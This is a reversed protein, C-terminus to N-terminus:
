QDFIHLKEIWSFCLYYIVKNFIKNGFVVLILFAFLIVWLPTSLLHSLYFPAAKVLFGHLLFVPWTNQGIRTILLIKRDLYPKVGVFLFVNWSLSIMFIAARMWLTSSCNSYSYSGYLLEKPLDTCLFFPISILIVVASVLFIPLRIKSHISMAELIGNKKCYYGLLFWPQFVFFRSLSMYYGVSDDYGIVLAIIFVVLVAIKQRRKDTTDFLPLLLQYFICALMYWLLWYPTTYQFEIDSDLVCRAFVLYASQFILYPICWRYIIQKGSYKINYGFLFLFAPMHFSYIFKYIYGSGTFPKCVELLHAFVVTFILFFRINDLSYDRNKILGCTM